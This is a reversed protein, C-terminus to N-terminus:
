EEEIVREWHYGGATKQRGKLVNNIGYKHIGAWRAAAAQSPFVEGTEVCKIPTFQKVKQAERYHETSLNESRTTWYLNHVNNNSRDDDRHGVDLQSLPYGQLEEPIPIFTKAILRNVRYNKGAISTYIYGFGNDYTALFKKDFNSWIGGEPTAAYLGQFGPINKMNENM